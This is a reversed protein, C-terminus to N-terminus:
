IFLSSNLYWDLLLSILFHNMFIFAINGTDNMMFGVISVIFIVMADEAFKKDVKKCLFKISYLQSVIAISFPPIVTLRLLEKLKILAMSFFESAGYEKVRILFSIAHSKEDNLIDFYMNIGFIIFGFLVLFILTRLNGNKKLLKNYIILLLLSSATIFGGTNAGFRASLLVINMCAMSFYLLNAILGNHMFERIFLYSVISTALLVAMMGNNFGYYRAGYFLNNVGIYSNYIVEPFLLTAIVIFGYTLISFLGITNIGRHNMISAVLYSVTLNIFVYLYINIHYKTIGMIFSLFISVIIFSYLFRVRDLIGQKRIRYLVVAAYFQIAYIIGHFIYSLLVLDNTDNFIDRIYKLNDKKEILEIENGITSIDKEDYVCILHGYIDELVIFGERRTSSSTLIGSRGDAKYLIPVLYSNFLEKMDDSVRKPLVIIRYEEFEDIYDRLTLLRDKNGNIDYSMVLINSNTLHFNTREVLWDLDYEIKIEGSEIHGKRDAVVIASSDSGMYSIGQDKLREGLLNHLPDEGENVANMVMDGFGSILIEGDNGQYLGKFNDVTGTKRGLAISLYLSEEIDDELTKINVFGMGFQNETSIVDMDKFNLEDVLIFITKESFAYADTTFLFLFIFLISLSFLTIQRKM